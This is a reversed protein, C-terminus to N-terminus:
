VYILADEIYLYAICENYKWEEGNELDSSAAIWMLKGLNEQKRGRGEVSSWTQCLFFFVSFGFFLVTQKQFFVWDFM